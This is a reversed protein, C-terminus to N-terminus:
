TVMAVATTINFNLIIIIEARQQCISATCVFNSVTNTVANSYSFFIIGQSVECYLDVDPCQVCFGSSIFFSM